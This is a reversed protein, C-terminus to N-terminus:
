IFLDSYIVQAQAQQLYAVGGALHFLPVQFGLCAREIYLTFHSRTQGAQILFTLPLHMQAQGPIM